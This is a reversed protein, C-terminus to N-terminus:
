NYYVLGIKGPQLLNKVLYNRWAADGGPYGAEVDVRTFIRNDIKVTDAPPQPPVQAQMSFSCIVLILCIINKCPM